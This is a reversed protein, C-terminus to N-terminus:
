YFYYAMKKIFLKEHTSEKGMRLTQKGGLKINMAKHVKEKFTTEWIPYAKARM